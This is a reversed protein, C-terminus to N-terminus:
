QVPFFPWGIQMNWEHAPPVCYLLLRTNATHTKQSALFFLTSHLFIRPTAAGGVLSAYAKNEEPPVYFVRMRCYCHDVPLYLSIHLSAISNNLSM